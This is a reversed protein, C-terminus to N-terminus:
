TSSQSFSSFILQELNRKRIVGDVASYNIFFLPMKAWITASTIKTQLIWCGVRHSWQHKWDPRIHQTQTNHKLPLFLFSSKQLDRWCWWSLCNIHLFKHIFEESLVIKQPIHNRFYIQVSCTCRWLVTYHFSSQILFVKTANKCNKSFTFQTEIRNKLFCKWCCQWTSNKSFESNM